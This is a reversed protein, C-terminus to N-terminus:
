TLNKSNGAKENTEYVGPNGIKGICNSAVCEIDTSHTLNKVKNVVLRNFNQYNEEKILNPFEEQKM